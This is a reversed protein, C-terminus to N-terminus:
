PGIVKLNATQKAQPLGSLPRTPFSWAQELIPGCSGAVMCPEQFWVRPVGPWWAWSLSLQWWQGEHWTCLLQWHWAAPGRLWGHVCFTAQHEAPHWPVPQTAPLQPIHALSLLGPPAELVPTPHPWAEFTPAERPFQPLLDPCSPSHLLRALASVRPGGEVRVRPTLHQVVRRPHGSATGMGKRCTTKPAQLRAWAVSRGM